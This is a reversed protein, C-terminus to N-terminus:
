DELRKVYRAGDHIFGCAELLRNSATNGRDPEVVITKAGLERLRDLMLAIMTKGFGRRLYEPEGVLYDISFVEGPTPIDMGWDEYELSHYCDYYQCFGVPEGNFEAIMHTIFDFEGHRDRLEKLWDLPHEYWPKVHDAYLWREMLAMDNDFFPRLTLEGPYHNKSM